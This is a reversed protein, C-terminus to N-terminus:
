RVLRAAADYVRTPAQSKLTRDRILEWTKTLDEFDKGLQRASVGSAAVSFLLGMGEPIDLGDAVRQLRVREASESVSRSLRAGVHTNPLLVLFRGPLYLFTTLAAGKAGVEDKIVQVLMVQRRKIVEQIKYTRPTDQEPLAEVGVVVDKRGDALENAFSPELWELARHPLGEILQQRDLAPIQYYDPHIDRFALFGAQQGGFSLFACDLAPEVRLVQALYISGVPPLEAGKNPLGIAGDLKAGKFRVGEVNARRFDAGSLDANSFDFGRLDEDRFDLDCLSAGVFDCAPDLAAAKALDRFSPLENRTAKELLRDLINALPRSPTAQRDTM